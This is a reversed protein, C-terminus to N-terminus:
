DMNGSISVPNKLRKFRRHLSNLIWHGETESQEIISTTRRGLQNCFSVLEVSLWKDWSLGM